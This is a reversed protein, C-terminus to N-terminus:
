FLYVYRLVFFNMLDNAENEIFRITRTVAVEAEHGSGLDKNLGIYLRNQEFGQNYRKNLTNTNYFLENQYVFSLKYKESIKQKIRYKYRLRYSSGEYINFNRQEFRIQQATKFSTLRSQYFWNIFPRTESFERPIYTELYAYGVWFSQTESYQWGVMSRHMIAQMKEQDHKIRPQYEAYGLFKDYITGRTFLMLWVQDQNNAFVINVNIILIFFSLFKM